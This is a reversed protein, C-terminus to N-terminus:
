GSIKKVGRTLEAQLGLIEYLMELAEDPHEKAVDKREKPDTELDHLLAKPERGPRVAMVMAKWKGRRLAQRAGRSWYLDRLPVPEGRLLSGSLDMGDFKMKELDGGALSLMTPAFDLGSVLDESRGGAAIGPGSLLAPVRHGGEWVNGRRGRWPGISGLRTPGNDSSFIVYTNERIGLTELEAVIKGVGEDLETIMEVYAVERDGRMGMGSAKDGEKRFAADGRGQYPSHPAAHSLFLLFPSEKRRRLFDIGYGTILDTVYGEDAELEGDRWWDIHGVPGIHSFYDVDKGVFGRFEDFGQVTPGFEATYGLNWKGFIATAYGLERLMEAITVATPDLGTERHHTVTLVGQIGFRHPYLGTLMGARAPSGVVGCSHFDTLLMGKGALADINPTAISGGYCGLDGYGLDDALILVFNPPRKEQAEVTSEQAGCCLALITLWPLTISCLRINM